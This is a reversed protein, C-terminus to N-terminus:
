SNKLHTSIISKGFYKEMHKGVCNPHASINKFGRKKDTYCIESRNKIETKCLRCKM